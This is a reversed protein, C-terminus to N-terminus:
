SRISHTNGPQRRAAEIFAEILVPDKVGPSREVGSSVDVAEAGTQAIAAAVNGPVLGGALLWPGPAQWGRLTSWDFQVANGGPRTAGAPAKADLLLRDVGLMDGPLDAASRVGVALWVPRGFRARLAAARHPPAVVQLVDLAIVELTEAVQEDTPDVFLGVRAPGPAIALRAADRPTM